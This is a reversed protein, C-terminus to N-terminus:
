RFRIVKWLGRRWIGHCQPNPAPAEVYSNLPCLCETWLGMDSGSEPINSFIYYGYFLLLFSKLLPNNFLVCTLASNTLLFILGPPKRM